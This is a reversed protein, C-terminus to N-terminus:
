GTRGQTHTPSGDGTHGASDPDWMGKTWAQGEPTLSLVRYTNNRGTPGKLSVEVETVLRRGVLDSLVPHWIAPNVSPGIGTQLMPRSIKPYISLVHLIKAEVVQIASSDVMMSDTSSLARSNM